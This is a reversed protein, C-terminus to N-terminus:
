PASVGAVFTDFSYDRRVVIERVPMVTGAGFQFPPGRLDGDMVCSGDSVICQINPILGSSETCSTGDPCTKTIGMMLFEFSLMAGECGASLGELRAHMRMGGGLSLSRRMTVRYEGWGNPGFTCVADARKPECSYNVIPNGSNYCSEYKPILSGSFRLARTPVVHEAASQSVLGILLGMLMPMVRNM